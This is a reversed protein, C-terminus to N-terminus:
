GLCQFPVDEGEVKEWNGELGLVLVGVTVFSCYPAHGPCM